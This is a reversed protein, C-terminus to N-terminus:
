KLMYPKSHYPDILIPGECRKDPITAKTGSAYLNTVDTDNALFEDLSPTEGATIKIRCYIKWRSVTNFHKINNIMCSGAESRYIGGTYGMAGAYFGIWATDYKSLSAFTNWNQGSVSPTKTMEPDSWASYVTNWEPLYVNPYCGIAQWQRFTTENSQKYTGNESYQYEDGLLGIGHGGYEHRLTYEFGGYSSSSPHRAPTQAISVVGWGGWTSNYQWINTGAYKDANIIISIPSSTIAAMTEMGPIKQVFQIVTNTNCGINTSNGGAWSCQFRTDVKTTAKNWDNSGSSMGTENSYAAIKWIAFYNYYYKYPEIDFLAAIGKNVEKDWQGGYKYLDQTYGDGTYILKFPRSTESVETISGDRNVEYLRAEGDAWYDKTSGTTFTVVDSETKGDSYGDDSVVKYYYTTNKELETTNMMKTKKTTFLSTWNINDKSVMVTYTIEDGNADTSKTWSFDTITKVGTGQPSLYSAKTPAANPMAGKVVTLYKKESSTSVTIFTQDSTRGKYEGTRIIVSTTGTGSQPTVSTLWSPKPNPLSISWAGSCVVTFSGTQGSQYTMEVKDVSLSLPTEVPSPPPTPTPSPDLHKSGGGCSVLLLSIVLIQLIWIKKLISKMFM